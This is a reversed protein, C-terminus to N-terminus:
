YGGRGRPPPPGGRGRSGQYGGGQNRGWGGQGGGGFRGGGRGGGRGGATGGGPVTQGKPLGCRFCAPKSAFVVGCGRPCQWDGDRSNSQGSGYGGFSQGYGGAGLAAGARDGVAAAGGDHALVTAVTALADALDAPLADHPKQTKQAFAKALRIRLCAIQSLVALPVRFRLWDDCVLVAENSEDQQRQAEVRMKKAEAVDNPDNVDHEPMECPPLGEVTLSGTVLVLAPATVTTCERVYMQAEGRTIDDYCVLVPGNNKIATAHLKCNVSHPHIKVKEGRLTALTAKQGGGAQQQGDRGNGPLLLRGILPYMGVALVARVLSGASANESAQHVNAILGRTSLASILQQRMGRLMNLTAGSLSNQQNFRREGGGGGGGRAQEWGVYAKTVALHDSGGGAQDSFHHRAAKGSERSGDTSVVFPSRYAAACAVTLVPDLVGLLTAYLLMKGVRPHVPMEGLHHGLKTLSEDEKLAGINQLLTVAHTIAQPVPPEPAQALFAATSGEGTGVTAAIGSAEAGLSSAEALMRVQLCLEELPSRQMEPLQFDAFAAMRAISYLRYCEGPRVRGARGRRQQASARSIWTAQLTSVGTHADYSKEKLRGSDIVFVVDDITVATEAINTALVVKKVGKPPRQFVRKQEAPPVMSHLPLVLVDQGFRPDADLIDRLQSIEHWGPLFVLVAGDAANADGQERKVEDSRQSIIWYILAAALDLDVEDPDAKLQYDSMSLASQETSALRNLEEGAADLLLGIDEHGFRRAWSAATGGDRSKQSPDAGCGLLRTVEMHRGKGAAAMLPTAGTGAHAVGALAQEDAYGGGSNTITALLDDFAEDSAELFARMTAAQVRQGEPSDPDATAVRRTAADGERGGYGVVQLIDELHYDAVPHTRGPVKIVPCNNFYSSFLDERVTASMLVLKLHPHRVLASRLVVALFDAFLDREHLEDVVIHSLGQLMEDAGPSTLRRLLVGNTCFLLSCKDAAAKSELRIQYGVTAQGIQEGREAAIRESVTIASIRRPQPCMVAAGKGLSWNHDILYQPVQTTKGCGTAGAVLVVQHQETASLLEQKFQSIPLANRLRQIEALKADGACRQALASARALADNQTINRYPKMLSSGKRKKNKNNAGSSDDGIEDWADDLSGTAATELERSTQPFRTFHNSLATLSQGHLTLPHLDEHDTPKYEKPKTVHVRRDEGKGHSKSKLGLKKCCAHVVARDHNSMDPPFVIESEDSSKFRELQVDIQIRTGETVPRQGATMRGGGRGSGFDGGGGRGRGGRGGGRGSM